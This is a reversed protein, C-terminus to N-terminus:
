KVDVDMADLDHDDDLDEGWDAHQRLGNRICTYVDNASADIDPCLSVGNYRNSNSIAAGNPLGSLDIQKFINALQIQILLTAGDAPLVPDPGSIEIETTDDSEYTFSNAGVTGAFYISNNVLQLPAGTVATEAKHLKMKIRRYDAAVIAQTDLAIPSSSLLDVAYPGPFEVEDGDTEDVGAVEETEFEIQEILVWAESLTMATGSADELSAPTFAFAKPLLLNYLREPWSLQAVTAAQGSGTMMLNANVLDTASKETSCGAFFVTALVVVRIM